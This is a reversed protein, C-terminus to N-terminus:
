VVDHGGARHVVGVACGLHIHLLEPLLEGLTAEGGVAELGNEDLPQRLRHLLWHLLLAVGCRVLIVM